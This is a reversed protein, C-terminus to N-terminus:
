RVSLIREMIWDLLINQWKLNTISKKSKTMGFKNRFRMMENYLHQFLNLM